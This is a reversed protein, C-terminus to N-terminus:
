IQWIFVPDDFLEPELFQLFQHNLFYAFIAFTLLIFFNAFLLNIWQISDKKKVICETILTNEVTNDTCGNAFIILDLILSFM